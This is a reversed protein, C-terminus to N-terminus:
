TVIIQSYEFERLTSMEKKFIQLWYNFSIQPDISVM